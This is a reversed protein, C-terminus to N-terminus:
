SPTTKYSIKLKTGSYLTEIQTLLMALQNAAENYHPASLSHMVVTLTNNIYDPKIDASTKTIQKIFMRMEESGKTVYLISLNAVITEALYCIMKIINM